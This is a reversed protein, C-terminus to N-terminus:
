PLPAKATLESSLEERMSTSYGNWRRKVTGEREFLLLVPAQNVRYEERFVGPLATLTTIEANGPGGPLGPFPMPSPHIPATERKGSASILTERDFLIRYVRVSGPPATEMAERVAKWADTCAPCWPFDLFVLRFPEDSRPLDSLVKGSADAFIGKESPFPRSGKTIAKPGCGCLALFVILAAPLLRRL